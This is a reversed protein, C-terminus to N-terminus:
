LTYCLSKFMGCQKLSQRHLKRFINKYLFIYHVSTDKYYIRLCYIHFVCKIIILKISLKMKYNNYTKLISKISITTAWKSSNIALM